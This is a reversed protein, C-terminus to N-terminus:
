AFIRIPKSGCKTRVKKGGGDTAVILLRHFTRKERDLSQGLTIEGSIPDLDFNEHGESEGLVMFM